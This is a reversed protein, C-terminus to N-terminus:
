RIVRFGILELMKVDSDSHLCGAASYLSNIRTSLYLATLCYVGGMVLIDKPLYLSNM